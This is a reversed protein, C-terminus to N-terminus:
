KWAKPQHKRQDTRKRKLWELSKEVSFTAQSILEARRSEADFHQTSMEELQMTRRETMELYREVQTRGDEVHAQISEFISTQHALQHKAKVEADELKRQREDLHAERQRMDNNATEVVKRLQRLKKREQKIVNEHEAEAVRIEKERELVVKTLDRVVERAKNIEKNRQATATKWELKEKELRAERVDLSDQLSSLELISHVHQKQATDNDCAIDMDKESPMRSLKLQNNETQTSSCQMSVGSHYFASDVAVQLYEHQQKLDQRVRDLDSEITYLNEERISLRGVLKDLAVEQAERALRHLIKRRQQMEMQHDLLADLIRDTADEAAYQFTRNASQNEHFLRQQDLDVSEQKMSELRSALEKEYQLLMFSRKNLLVQQLEIQFSTKPHSQQAVALAKQMATARGLEADARRLRNTLEMESDTLFEKWLRISQRLDINSSRYIRDIQHQEDDDLLGMDCIHTMFSYIMKKADMELDQVNPACKGQMELENIDDSGKGEDIAEEDPDPCTDTSITDADEDRNSDNLIMLPNTANVKDNSLPKREFNCSWGMQNNNCINEKAPECDIIEAKQDFNDRTHRLDSARRAKRANLIAEKLNEAAERVHRNVYTSDFEGDM